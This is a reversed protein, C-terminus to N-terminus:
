KAPVEAVLPDAEKWAFNFLVPTQKTSSKDYIPMKKVPFSLWEGLFIKGDKPHYDAAGNLLGEEALVYTLYGHQIGSTQTTEKDREAAALIRMGKDYALQGMGPDGMPGARFEGKPDVAAASNCADIVVAITGADIDRFWLGLDDDSITRPLYADIDIGIRKGLDSPILHFQGQSAYGHGAFYLFVLDNPGAKQIKDAQEIDKTAQKPVSKGALLALVTSLNQKTGSHDNGGTLLKVTIVESYTKSAKLKDSLSQALLKADETPFALAAQINADNSNVGLAIVYARRAPSTPSVPLDYEKHASLGKVGSVNTAYASFDIKRPTTSQPVPVSFELSAAGSSDLKIPDGYPKSYAVLLGDRFLRLNAAGSALPQGSGDKQTRSLEQQIALKVKVSNTGDPAVENITVVPLSRNVKTLSDADIERNSAAKPDLLDPLLRPEYFQRTFVEMPLTVTPEEKVIWYVEDVNELRSADIRGQPSIMLWDQESPAVLSGIEIDREVDFLRVRNEAGGLALIKGDPHYALNGWFDTVIKSQTVKDAELDWHFLSRDTTFSLRKQEPVFTLNSIDETLPMAHERYSQGTEVNFARLKAGDIFAVLAGDSSFAFNAPHFTPQTTEALKGLLLPPKGGKAITMVTVSGDQTMYVLKTGAPNFAFGTVAKGPSNSKLTQVEAGGAREYIHLGTGLEWIAIYNAAPDPSFAPLVYGDFPKPFHYLEVQSEADKLSVSYKKPEKKDPESTLTYKGDASIPMLNVYVPVNSIQEAAGTKLDWSKVGNTLSATLLHSRDPSFTPVSGM